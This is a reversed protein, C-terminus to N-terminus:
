KLRQFFGVAVYPGTKNPGIDFTSRKWGGRLMISRSSPAHLFEFLGGIQLSRIDENGQAMVEGGAYHTYTNQWKYNTLQRKVGVRSWLYGDEAGYNLQGHVNVHEAPDGYGDLGLSVGTEWDSDEIELGNAATFTETRRKAGLGVSFRFWNEDGIKLGVGTSVGPSRVKTEGGFEEFQYTLYNGRVSAQIALNPKIPRVWTPGFFTYSTGHTDFETGGVLDWYPAEVTDVTQGQGTQGNPQTSPAVTNLPAMPSQTQAQAAAAGLMLALCTGMVTRRTGMVKM